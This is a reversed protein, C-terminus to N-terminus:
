RCETKPDDNSSPAINKDGYHQEVMGGCYVDDVRRVVRHKDPNLYWISIALLDVTGV